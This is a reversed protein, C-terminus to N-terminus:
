TKKVVVMTIDDEHGQGSFSLAAEALALAIEEASKQKESLEALLVRVREGGFLRDRDSTAHCEILGDTHRETRTHYVLRLPTSVKSQLRQIIGKMPEMHVM